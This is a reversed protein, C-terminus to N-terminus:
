CRCVHLLLSFDGCVAGDAGGLSCRKRVSCGSMASMAGMGGLAQLDTSANPYHYKACSPQAPNQVCSTGADLNLATGGNVALFTILTTMM